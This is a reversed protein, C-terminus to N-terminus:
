GPLLGSRVDFGALLADRHRDAVILVGGPPPSLTTLWPTDRYTAPEVGVARERGVVGCAFVPEGPELLHEVARLEVATALDAASVCTREIIPSLPPRIVASLDLRTVPEPALLPLCRHPRVRVALQTEPEVLDFEAVSSVDLLQRPVRRGEEEFVGELLLRCGIIPRGSLPASTLALARAVGEFGGPGDPAGAVPRVPCAAIQAGWEEIRRARARALRADDVGKEVAAGTLDATDLVLGLLDFLDFAM